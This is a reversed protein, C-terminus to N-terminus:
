CKKVGNYREVLQEDNMNKNKMNENKMNIEGENHSPKAGL